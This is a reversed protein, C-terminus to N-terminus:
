IGEPENQMGDCPAASAMVLGGFPLQGHSHIADPEYRKRFPRARGKGERGSRKRQRPDDGHRAPLRRTTKVEARGLRAVLLLACPRALLWIIHTRLRRGGSIQRSPKIGHM